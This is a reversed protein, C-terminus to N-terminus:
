HPHINKEPVPEGSNDQVLDLSGYFPQTHTHTHNHDYQSSHLLSLAPLSSDLQLLQGLTTMQQLSCHTMPMSQIGTIATGSTGLGARVRIEKELLWQKDKTSSQQALCRSPVTTDGAHCRRHGAGIVPSSSVRKTTCRKASVCCQVVSGIVIV